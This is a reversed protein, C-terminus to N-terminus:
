AALSLMQEADERRRKSEELKDAALKKVKKMRKPDAEVARARTIAELDREIQGYEGYNGVDIGFIELVDKDAEVLIEIATSYPVPKVRGGRM